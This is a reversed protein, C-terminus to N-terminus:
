LDKRRLQALAARINTHPVTVRAFHVKTSTREHASDTAKPSYLWRRNLPLVVRGKAAPAPPSIEAAPLGPAVATAAIMTGTTKLFDRRDM